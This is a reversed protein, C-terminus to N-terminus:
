IKELVQNKQTVSKQESFKFIYEHTHTFFYKEFTKSLLGEFFCNLTLNM